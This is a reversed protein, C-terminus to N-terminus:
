FAVELRSTSPKKSNRDSASATADMAKRKAVTESYVSAAKSTSATTGSTAASTTKGGTNELFSLNITVSLFDGNPSFVFNSADVKKLMLSAPGFRKGGIYLPNSQGVLNEWEELQTRPDAGAARTCTVSFSVPRAVLGRTNTPSTGSTDNESDAKLEVSTSFNEMLMILTPSLLFNKSGWQAMNSM